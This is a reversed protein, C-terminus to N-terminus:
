QSTIFRTIYLILLKKGKGKGLSSSIALREWRLYLMKRKRDSLEEMTEHGLNQFLCVVSARGVKKGLNDWM